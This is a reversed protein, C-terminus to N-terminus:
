ARRHFSVGLRAGRLNTTNPFDTMRATEFGTRTALGPGSPRYEPSPREYLTGFAYTGQFGFYRALPSRQPLVM